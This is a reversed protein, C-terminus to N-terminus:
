RERYEELNLKRSAFKWRGEIRVYRDDYYGYGTMPIEDDMARLDLYCIGTAQDGEIEIVHNHVFPKFTSADFTAQYIELLAARGEIPPRDGMDMVADDAFLDIAGPVDKQWVYHAYRRALDRIDELDALKRVIEDPSREAM